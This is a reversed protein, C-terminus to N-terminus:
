SQSSKATQRASVSKRHKFLKTLLQSLRPPSKKWIWPVIVFYAYGVVMLGILVHQLWPPMSRQVTPLTGRRHRGLDVGYHAALSVAGVLLAALLFATGLLKWSDHPPRGAGFEGCLVLIYHDGKSLQKIVAKWQEAAAPDDKKMREHAHLLLKSIKTEYEDSDYEVEFEDNLKIPDERMEGSETFYMMRKELHSLPVNELAAQAAAQQVLFDKAELDQM